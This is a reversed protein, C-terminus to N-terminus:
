TMSAFAAIQSLIEIEVMNNRRVVTHQLLFAKSARPLRLLSGSM